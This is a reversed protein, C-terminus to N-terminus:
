VHKRKFFNIFRSYMYWNGLYGVDNVILCWQFMWKRTEMRHINVKLLRHYWYKWQFIFSSSWDNRLRMGLSKGNQMCTRYANVRTEEHSSTIIKNETRHLKSILLSILCDSSWGRIWLRIDEVQSSGRPSLVWPVLNATLIVQWPIPVRVANGWTSM